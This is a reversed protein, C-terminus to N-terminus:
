ISCSQRLFFYKMKIKLEGKVLKWYLSRFDKVEDFLDVCFRSEAVRVEYTVRNRLSRYETWLEQNNSM